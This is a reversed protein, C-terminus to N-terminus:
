AGPTALVAGMAIRDIDAYNLGHYNIEAAEEGVLWQCICNLAIAEFRTMPKKQTSYPWAAPALLLLRGAACAEFLRGAPKELKAFGMNRLAVLPLRREYATLAIQREGDSICPNVLVGGHASVALADELLAEYEPTSRGVMPVGSANRAIKHGGGPKSIRQWTFYRRSCQIQYLPRELLHRNGIAEFRGMFRGGALPLSLDTVRHFLMPNALKEALRAPNERIYAIMAELQGKRFLITDVFGEAWGAERCGTKFGRIIDGLIKHAPLKEKVFLLGHFHDPMVVAALLSVMPWFETIRLWCSLTKEGLATLPCFYGPTKPPVCAAEAPLWINQADGSVAIPKPWGALTPRGREALTITVM